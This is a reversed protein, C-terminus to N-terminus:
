EAREGKSDSFLSTQEVQRASTNFQFGFHDYALRTAM